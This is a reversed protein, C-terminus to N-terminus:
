SSSGFLWGLFSSKEKLKTVSKQAVESAPKTTQKGLTQKPKAREVKPKPVKIRAQNVIRIQKATTRFHLSSSTHATREVSLSELVMDKYEKLSTAITIPKREAFINELQKFAQESHDNSEGAIYNVASKIATIGLFSLPTNSIVGELSIVVPENYVHDVVTSGSEVPHETTTARLEHSEKIVADIIVEGLRYDEGFFFISIEEGTSM